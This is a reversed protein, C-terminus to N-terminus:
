HTQSISFQELSLDKGIRINLSLHKNFFDLTEKEEKEIYNRVDKHCRLSVIPKKKLTGPLLKELKGKPLYSEMKLFIEISISPLSKKRGMGKCSPCVETMFHSVSTQSRRRTIQVLGLEGMPFVRPYSKDGKFNRELCDVVRKGHEANEMDLFDVLIIGGLRRLQVQDAIVRAAEMNLDLISKAVNKSGSFRGQISM